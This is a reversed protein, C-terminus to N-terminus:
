ISLLHVSMYTDAPDGDIDVTDVGAVHYAFLELYQGATLYVVDSCGSAVESTSATHCLSRLIVTGSRKVMCYYPKDAVLNEYRIGAIVQYYGSVPAIFRYNTVSDFNGGPDYDETDLLVKTAAGSSINLQDASLHVRAKYGMLDTDVKKDQLENIHSALVEDDSTKNLWVWGLSFLLGGLCGLITNLIDPNM